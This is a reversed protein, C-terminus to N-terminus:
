AQGGKQGSFKNPKRKTGGVYPKKGRKKREESSNVKTGTKVRFGNRNESRERM